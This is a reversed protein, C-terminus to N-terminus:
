DEATVIVPRHDSLIEPIIQAETLTLDRSAFIYDIKKEPADSPFSLEGNLLEDADNMKERLPPIFRSEPTVNFDGMLLCREPEILGLVTELANAQEDENLGFHTVLFTYGAIRARLVCRPEYYQDGDRVEPYPIPFVRAEDIPLRSVIANGFPDRGDAMFAFAFYCHWGLEAALKEAQAGYLRSAGYVENLGVVDAGTRRILEAFGKYDIEGTNINKFHLVNYTMAKLKM